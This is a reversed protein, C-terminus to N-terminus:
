NVNIDFTSERQMGNPFIVQFSISDPGVYHANSKYFLAVGRSEKENCRYRQNTSPYATFDKINETTATGHVPAKVVRIVTDGAVSCDPNIVTEFAVKFRTGSVVTRVSAPPTTSAPVSKAQANPTAGMAGLDIVVKPDLRSLIGMAASIAARQMSTQLQGMMQQFIITFVGGAPKDAGLAQIELKCDQETLRSVLSAVDGVWGDRKPLLAKLDEDESAGDLFISMILHRMVVADAPTSHKEVCSLVQARDAAEDAHAPPATLYGGILMLLGAFLTNRPSCMVSDM